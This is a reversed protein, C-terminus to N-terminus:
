ERALICIGAADAVRATEERDLVITRGAQVALVSAKAQKLTAATKPGITPIDFREDHNHKAVKIAVVNGRGLEGGRLLVADTGEVGEVAIVCQEKVVITQGIQMRAIEKAIPWGFEIDRLESETPKRKTICGAEILVEPCYLVSSVLEIGESALEEALLGLIDHDRKSVAKGFWLKLTRADPAYNLIRRPDYIRGKTVGGCLAVRSVGEERFIRIWRGLQALGTWHIADVHGELDPSAEGKLAVAVVRRGAKRAGDAFSFPFSGNGAIIGVSDAKTKADNQGVM